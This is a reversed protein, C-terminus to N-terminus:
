GGEQTKESEGLARALRLALRKVAPRNKNTRTMIQIRTRGQGTPALRIWVKRHSLYFACLFGLVMIICGTWVLWVGPDYKVSLGTYPRTEAGLVEFRVPGRSPMRTGPKFATIIVAEGQPDARWAVRAIPGDYMGGMRVRARYEVIGAQGGGPLNSWQHHKLEVKRSKGDKVYNLRVVAPLEGYSSQYFVVGDLSAPHNVRIAAKQVVKGQKLFVVESRYEKPTRGDPYYTINFRDLRVAFGLEVTRGRRTTLHDISSGEVINVQGQYGFVLGVLAGALIILVSSHVVYVGLRSWAGRQAFLLYGEGERRQHVKGVLRKLLRRAQDLHERPEGPVTFERAPQLRRQLEKEPDRRVIRIVRPLRDLSCIVLNTALCAMLFLFWPTHYMDELGLKLILKGWFPGYGHLYAQAPENQPILTGAVSAAALALLLFFTLKVSAFLNWIRQGVSDNHDKPSM